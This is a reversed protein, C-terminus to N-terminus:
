VDEQADGEEKEKSSVRGAAAQDALIKRRACSSCRGGTKSVKAGCDICRPYKGNMGVEAADEDMERKLVVSKLLTEISPLDTEVALADTWKLHEKGFLNGLSELLELVDDEKHNKDVIVYITKM